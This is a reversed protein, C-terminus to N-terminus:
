KVFFQLKYAKPEKALRILFVRDGKKIKKLQGCSWRGKCFGNKSIELISEQIDWDFRKPNWALLYTNMLKLSFRKASFTLPNFSSRIIRM